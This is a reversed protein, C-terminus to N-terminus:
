LVFNDRTLFLIAGGNFCGFNCYYGVAGAEWKYGRLSQMGTSDVVELGLMLVLVREDCQVAVSM